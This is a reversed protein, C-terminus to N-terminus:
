LLAILEVSGLGESSSARAYASGGIVGRPNAPAMYIRLVMNRAQEVSTM